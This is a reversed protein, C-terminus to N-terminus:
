IELISIEESLKESLLKLREKLHNVQFIKQRESLKMELVSLVQYSFTYANNIYLVNILFNLDLTKGMNISRKLEGAIHHVLAQTEADDTVLEEIPTIQALMFPETQVVAGLQVKEVGKVLIQTEGREGPNVREITAIVGVPYLDSIEPSEKTTRQTVVLIRNDSQIAQQLAALSRPRGVVLVSECSPMVVTDLVPLVPYITQASPIITSM